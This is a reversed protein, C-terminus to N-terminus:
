NDFWDRKRTLKLDQLVSSKPKITFNYSQLAGFPIINFSMEWCHLDRYIGINTATIQKDTFDYGSQVSIKWKPTISFNTGITINNTIIQTDVGGIFTNNIRLKYGLNLDWPINFDIYEDPYQNVLSTAEEVNENVTRPNSKLSTNVALDTSTVRFLKKRDEWMSTNIRTGTGGANVVTVYPDLNQTLNINIKNFLKTTARLVIPSWNLSDAIVNYSTNLNFQDLISIKKLNDDSLTDKKSFIKATLNNNLSFDIGGFERQNPSGVIGGEFRSYTTTSGLSDTQVTEFYGWKPDTFDIDYRAALTPTLVHRIARVKGRKFAVMGYLNTSLNTSLGRIDRSSKLGQIDNTVVSQTTTDYIKEITKFYTYENFSLNPLIGLNFYNFLKYSGFNMTVSNKFGTQFEQIINPDEFLLSDYTSLRNKEEMRYNVGVKEYWKKDGVQIKRKFPYVTRMVLAADPLTLNLVGTQLNQNHRFNVNASFPTGAFTKRYNIGSSLENNLYQNQSYSNSRAFGRTQIDVNMDFGANPWRKDDVRFDSKIKFNPTESYNPSEPIGVKNVTYRLTTSGDYKYRKVYRATGGLGWSGRSYIDGRLQLDFRDSIGFYYGGDRLYYGQGTSFGYTPFLIGSAQKKNIPFIGFPIALPTPVKEIEMISPGAVIQKDPIVKLKSIRMYFHPDELNCTTYKANKIFMEDKENKKVEEGHVYGGGEETLIKYIKGKKSDYNYVMREANYTKGAEVFVPTGKLSGNSDLTGEATILKKGWDFVIYDADLSIDGYLVKANGYLFAKNQTIDFNISDEAEYDVDHELPDKAVPIALSDILSLSSDKIASTDTVVQSSLSDFQLTDVQGFTVLSCLLM